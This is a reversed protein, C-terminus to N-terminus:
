LSRGRVPSEGSEDRAAEKDQSRDSGCIPRRSRISFVRGGRYFVFIGHRLLSSGDEARNHNERYRRLVLFLHAITRQLHYFSRGPPGKFIFNTPINKRMDMGRAKMTRSIKQYGALKAVIEECDVVDEFLKQLNDSANANRNFDVDFDQPEFVIDLPRQSLPLRANRTQYNAKARGLLNEVEGGNGFNPRNRSRALVEIAVVKAPDTAALDQDKMKLQLIQLLENDDFDTFHFADDIAFRRSLGPNVNKFCLINPQPLKSSRAYDCVQFMDEMQDKYGLLLVCRDEGPVSQIEAVMTDIVATKYPDGQNGANGSGGYLM